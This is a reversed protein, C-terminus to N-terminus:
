PRKPRSRQHMSAETMRAVRAAAPAFRFESGDLATFPQDTVPRPAILEGYSASHTLPFFNYVVLSAVIPVAFVSALLALKARPSFTM